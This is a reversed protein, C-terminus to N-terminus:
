IKNVIDQLDIQEDVHNILEPTAKIFHNRIILFTVGSSKDMALEIRGLEKHELYFGGVYYKWESKPLLILKENIQQETFTM